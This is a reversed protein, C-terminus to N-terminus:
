WPGNGSITKLDGDLPRGLKRDYLTALMFVTSGDALSLLARGSEARQVRQSTRQVGGTERTRNRVTTEQQRPKRQQHGEWGRGEGGRRARPTCQAKQDAWGVKQYNGVVLRDLRSCQGRRTGLISRGM